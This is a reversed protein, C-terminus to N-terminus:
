APRFACSHNCDHYKIPDIKTCSACKGHVTGYREGGPIILGDVAHLQEVTRVEVCRWSIYQGRSEEGLTIFARRLLQIHESFAGQLALVGVTIDHQKDQLDM